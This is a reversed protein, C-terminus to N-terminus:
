RHRINGRRTHGPATLLAHRDRRLARYDDLATPIITTCDLDGCECMMPVRSVFHYRRAQDAIRDNALRTREPKALDLRLSKAFM